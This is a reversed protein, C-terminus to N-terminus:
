SGDKSIQDLCNLFRRNNTGGRIPLVSGDTFKTVIKRAEYLEVLLSAERALAEEWLARYKEAAEWIGM